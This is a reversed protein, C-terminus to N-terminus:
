GDPWMGTHVVQQWPLYCPSTLKHYVVLMIRELDMGQHGDREKGTGLEEVAIHMSTFCKLEPDLLQKVYETPQLIDIIM